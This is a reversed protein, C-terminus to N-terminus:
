GGPAPRCAIPQELIQAESSECEIRELDDHLGVLRSTVGEPARLVGRIPVNRTAPHADLMDVATHFGAADNM